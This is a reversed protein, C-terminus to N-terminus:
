PQVKRTAMWKVAVVTGVLAGITGAALAQKSGVYVLTLVGSSAQLSAAVCGAAWANGKQATSMYAVWLLDLWFAVTFAVLTTM